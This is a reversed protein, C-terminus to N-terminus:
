APAAGMSPDISTAPSGAVMSSGTGVEPDQTAPDPDAAGSTPAAIWPPQEEEPSLESCAVVRDRGRAKAAYMARDAQGLLIDSDLGHEPCTAVGFSATLPEGDPRGLTSRVAERLREAALLAGASDTGPLVMAFEEGGVRAAFDAGRGQDRCVAAFRSLAEDGCRHGFRDNLSKFCDIDGLILSLPTGDRDSRALEAALRQQYGRRNLLGTLEDHTAARELREILSDSRLRLMAALGSVVVLTMAVMLWWSLADADGAGAVAIAPGSMVIALATLLVAGRRDLLYWAEASIWSYLLLYPTRATHCFVIGGSIAVIGLVMAPFLFRPNLRPALALLSVGLCLAAFGLAAIVQEDVRAEVGVALTALVVGGAAVWKWGLSRWQMTAATEPLFLQEVSEELRAFFPRKSM